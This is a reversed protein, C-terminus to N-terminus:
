SCATGFDTKRGYQQQNNSDASYKYVSNSWDNKSRRLRIKKM